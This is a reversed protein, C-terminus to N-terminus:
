SRSRARGRVVVPPMSRAGPVIIRYRDSQSLVDLAETQGGHILVRKGDMVIYQDPYCIIAAEIFVEVGERDLMTLMQNWQEIGGGMIRVAYVFQLAVQSTREEPVPKESFESTVTKVEQVPLGTNALAYEIIEPVCNNSPIRSTFIAAIETM